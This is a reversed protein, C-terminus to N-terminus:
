ATGGDVTYVTGGTVTEGYVEVSKLSAGDDNEYASALSGFWAATIIPNGSDPDTFTANVPPLMRLTTSKSDAWNFKVVTTKEVAM